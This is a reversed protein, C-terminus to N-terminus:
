VVLTTCCGIKRSADMINKFYMIKDDKIGKIFKGRHSTNKYNRSRMIKSHRTSNNEKRTVWRLNELRNDKPNSNIHDCQLKEMGEIPKFTMLVLRHVYGIACSLYPIYKNKHHLPIIMEQGSNNYNLNKVRGLNSVQYKGEYGKVDKWIEKNTNNM